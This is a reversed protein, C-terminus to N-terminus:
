VRIDMDPRYRRQQRERGWGGIVDTLRRWIGRDSGKGVVACGDGRESDAVARAVGVYGDRAGLVVSTYDPVIMSAGSEM